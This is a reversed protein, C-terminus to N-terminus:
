GEIGTNRPWRGQTGDSKVSLKQLHTGLHVHSHKSICPFMVLLTQVFHNATVLTAHVYPERNQQDVPLHKSPGVSLFLSVLSPENRRGDNSRTQGRRHPTKNETSLLFMLMRDRLGWNNGEVLRCPCVSVGCDPSLPGDVNAKILRGDSRLVWVDEKLIFLVIRQNDSLLYVLHDVM